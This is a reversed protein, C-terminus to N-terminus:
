NVLMGGGFGFLFLLVLYTIFAAFFSGLGTVFYKLWISQIRFWESESIKERILIAIMASIAIAISNLTFALIKSTSKFSSYIGPWNNIKYLFTDTHASIKEIAKTTQQKLKNIQQKAADDIKKQAKTVM